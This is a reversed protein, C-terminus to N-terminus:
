TSPAGAALALVALEVEMGAIAALDVVRRAVPSLRGLRAAVVERVSDPVDDAAAVSRVSAVGARPAGGCGSAVLHDWLEGVYFANGDSREALVRAM